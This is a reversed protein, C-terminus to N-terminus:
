KGSVDSYGFREIHKEVVPVLHALKSEYNKWKYQSSSYLPQSVQNNSTTSIVKTRAHDSFEKYANDFPLSLFELVLRYQDEINEVVDEYRVKIANLDFTNELLQYFNFVQNYRKATSELTILFSMENNMKFAQQFNSYIVDLPHRINIIFKASPFLMKILPIHLTNIPMKDVLCKIDEYNGITKYVQEFYINRLINIDEGTLVELNYPYNKKYMSNAKNIVKSITESESLSVIYPHTDLVTELLTTGSRPFGVMFVPTFEAQTIKKNALVKLNVNRYHQIFDTQKLKRYKNNQRIAHEQYYAFSKDFSKLKEYSSALLRLVVDKDIFWAPLSDVTINELLEIVNKYEADAQSQLAMLVKFWPEHVFKVKIRDILKKSLEAENLKIYSHIIYAIFNPPLLNVHNSFQALRYIAVEKDLKRIACECLIQQGVAYYETLNLLKNAYEEAHKYDGVDYSLQSYLMRVDANNASDDIELIAILAERALKKKNASIYEKGLLKLVKIKDQQSPAINLASKLEIVYLQKKNLHSFCSAKFLSLQHKDKNTKPTIKKLLVLAKKFKKEQILLSIERLTM